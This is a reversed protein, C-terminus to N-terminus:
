RHAARLISTCSHPGSDGDPGQHYVTLQGDTGLAAGSVLPRGAVVCSDSALYRTAANDSADVVVNHAAVLTVANAATFGSILVEVQVHLLQM